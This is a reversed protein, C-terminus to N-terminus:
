FFLNPCEISQAVRAGGYYKGNVNSYIFVTGVAEMMTANYM